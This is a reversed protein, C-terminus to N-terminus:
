ISGYLDRMLGGMINLEHIIEWGLMVQMYYFVFRIRAVARDDSMLPSELVRRMARAVQRQANHIPPLVVSPLPTKLVLASALVYMSISILQDRQEREGHTRRLLDSEVIGRISEESASEAINADSESRELLVTSALGLPLDLLVRGEEEDTTNGDDPTDGACLELARQVGAVQREFSEGSVANQVQPYRHMRTAVVMPIPLMVWRAAVMADLMRQCANIIRRYSDVPFPGKLRPENLTDALLVRIELLSSQLQIESDLYERVTRVAQWEDADQATQQLCVDWLSSWLQKFLLSSTLIWWSLAQRVRVRAEYPWVYITVVMGAAIGLAVSLTRKIALMGITEEQDERAVWKNILVVGFAILGFQGIKPYRGNLIIHFCPVSFLVLLLYTLWPTQHTLEYVLFAALGGAFTGLIRYISVLTSGGVTPVMIAAASVVMWDLRWRHFERYTELDWYCPMSLLTVLLAYKTAFRVNLRRMWMLVLWLSRAARQWWRGDHKAAHLSRPDAFQSVEHRSELETTAGTDWLSWFHKSAWQLRPERICQIISQARTPPPRCVAAVQPLIDYLEDVFERLSFVFFYVVFLQEETTKSSYENLDPLEGVALDYQQHFLDIAQEMDRRLEKMWDSTGKATSKPDLATEVMGQIKELAGDCVKGLRVVPGRIRGIVEMYTATDLDGRYADSNHDIVRLELASTMGSLHLSLGDLCVVLDKLQHRRAWVSWELPELGCASLERKLDQLRQRHVRLSEKLEEPKAGHLKQGTNDPLRQQESVIPELLQPLLNRFSSLTRSLQRRLGDSATTPRVVWGVMLSIFMGLLVAVFVHQAKKGVSESLDEWDPWPLPTNDSQRYNVIPAERLMVLYFSVNSISTATGVSARNANAKFFALLWSYGFVFVGLSVVKSQWALPEVEDSFRQHLWGGVFLALYSVLSTITVWLVGVLGGEVLGARTKAAHFWIAANTVLHPSM